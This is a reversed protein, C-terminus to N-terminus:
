RREERKVVDMFWGDIRERDGFPVCRNFAGRAQTLRGRRVEVVYQLEGDRFVGYVTTWGTHIERAYSYVCNHM